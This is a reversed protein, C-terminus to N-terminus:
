WETSVPWSFTNCHLLFHVLLMFWITLFLVGFFVSYSKLYMGGDILILKKIQEPFAAAYMCAIGAGMSHGILTFPETDTNSEGDWQLHHIFDNVYFISEALVSPPADIGKHSSWGHGPFDMAMVNCSKNNEEYHKIIAPALKYFSRCNDMWGHLCLIRNHENQNTTANTPQESKSTTTTHWSQAAIKIGDSCQITIEKPIIGKMTTQQQRLSSSMSSSLSSSVLVARSTKSLLNHSQRISGLISVM